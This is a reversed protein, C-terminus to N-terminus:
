ESFTTKLTLPFTQLMLHLSNFPNTIITSTRCNRVNIAQWFRLGLDPGSTICSKEHEIGSLVFNITSMFTLIDVITPMKVNILLIFVVDSLCFALSKKM